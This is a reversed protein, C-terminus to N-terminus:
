LQTMTPRMFHHQIGFQRLPEGSAHSRLLLRKVAADAENIKSTLCAASILQQGDVGDVAFCNTLNQQELLVSFCKDRITEFPSELQRALTKCCRSKADTSIDNRLVLAELCAVGVAISGYEYIVSAMDIAIRDFDRLLEGAPARDIFKRILPIAVARFGNTDEAAHRCFDVFYRYHCDDWTCHITVLSHFSALRYTEIPHVLLDAFCDRFNRYREPLRHLDFRTMQLAGQRVFLLAGALLAACDNVSDRELQSGIAHCISYVLSPRLRIIKPAVYADLMFIQHETAHRLIDTFTPLWLALWGDVPDGNGMPLATSLLAALQKSAEPASSKQTCQKMWHAISDKRAGLTM